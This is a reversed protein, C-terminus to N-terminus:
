QFIEVSYRSVNLLKLERNFIWGYSFSSCECFDVINYLLRLIQHVNYWFNDSGAEDAGCLDTYCFKIWFVFFLIAWGRKKKKVFYLCSFLSM